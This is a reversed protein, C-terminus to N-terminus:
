VTKAINYKILNSEVNVSIKYDLKNLVCKIYHERCNRINIKYRSTTSLIKFSEENISINKGKAFVDVSVDENTGFILVSVRGRGAVNDIIVNVLSIIVKALMSNTYLIGKDIKISLNIDTSKMFDRILKTMAVISMKSEGNEIGYANRFFRIKHVLNESEKCVLVSARNKIEDNPNDLLNLYNDIAGISGALDHCIRASIAQSLEIEKQM